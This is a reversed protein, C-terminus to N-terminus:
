FHEHPIWHKLKVLHVEAQKMEDYTLNLQRWELAISTKVVIRM